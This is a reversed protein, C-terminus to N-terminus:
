EGLLTNLEGSNELAYLDDCGGIHTDGIFIQPVSTLGNLREKLAARGAADGSLDVETFDLDKKALLDKAAFCFPCTNTTYIEIKKMIDLPKSKLPHIVILLTDSVFAM